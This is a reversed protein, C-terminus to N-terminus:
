LSIAPLFKARRAVTYSRVQRVRLGASLQRRAWDAYHSVQPLWVVAVFDPGAMMRYLQQVAPDAVFAREFATLVEDAQSDLTIELVLTVGEGVQAPDLLAVQREIVGLKRLRAVRRLCTAPSAHVRAALAVNSLSADAQLQTLIRRDLEDFHTKQV